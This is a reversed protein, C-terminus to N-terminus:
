RTPPAGASAAARNSSQEGIEAMNAAAHYRSLFLVGGPGYTLGGDIFAAESYFVAPGSFGVIHNGAGRTVGVSYLAAFDANAAGGILLTDPDGALFAMGGYFTPLDVVSGLNRLHYSADFPPRVIQAGASDAQPPLAAFLRAARVKFAFAAPPKSPRSPTPALDERM